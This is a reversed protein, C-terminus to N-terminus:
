VDEQEEDETLLDYVANAKEYSKFYQIKINEYSICYSIRVDGDSAASVFKILKYRGFITRRVVTENTKM